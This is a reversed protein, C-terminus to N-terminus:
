NMMRMGANKAADKDFTFICECGAKHAFREIICDSFDAKSAIFIPLAKLGIEANEVILEKTQLLTELIAVVEQRTADYCEQM